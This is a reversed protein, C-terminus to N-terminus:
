SHQSQIASIRLKVNSFHNFYLVLITLYNFVLNILFFQMRTLSPGTLQMAPHPKSPPRLLDRIPRWSSMLPCRPLLQRVCVRWIFVVLLLRCGIIIMVRGERTRVRQSSARRWGHFRGRRGKNHKQNYEKVSQKEGGCEGGSTICPLHANTRKGARSEKRGQGM